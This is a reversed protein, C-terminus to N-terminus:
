VRTGGGARHFDKFYDVPVQAQEIESLVDTDIRPQLYYYAAVDAPAANRGLGRTDTKIGYFLATALLPDIEVEAECLYEVLITCAAGVDTRVDYYAAKLLRKVGPM